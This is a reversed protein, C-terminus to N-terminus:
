FRFYFDLDAIPTKKPLVLNIGPVSYNGYGVGMRLTFVSWSFVVSPVISGAFHFDLADSSGVAEVHLTDFDDPHLTSVARGNARQFALYRLQAVFATVESVRLEATTALQLNTVAAVGQLEAPDYSGRVTVTTYILSQSLTWRDNVRWSCTLDLPVATIVANGSDKQLAAPAVRFVGLGFSLAVPDEGVFRVKVHGNVVRLLWPLAYTGVMLRKIPSWEQRLLGVQFRGAPLTYATQDVIRDTETHKASAIGTALTTALAFPAGLRRAIM